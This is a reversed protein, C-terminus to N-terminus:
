CSAIRRYEGAAQNWSESKEYLGALRKTSDAGYPSDPYKSVSTRWCSDGSGELTAQAEVVAIADNHGKAALESGPAEAAIRMYNRVAEDTAGSQEAAEGQKYIAALLKENIAAVDTAIGGPIALLSRYSREASAYQGLEFAGHGLIVYATRSLKPDLDPRTRILHDALDMAQQYQALSFLTDAAATEVQPRARTTRSCCRSNSRRM